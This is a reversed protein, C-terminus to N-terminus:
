RFLSRASNHNGLAIAYNFADEIVRAKDEGAEPHRTRAKGDKAPYEELSSGAFVLWASAFITLPVHRAPACSCPQGRIPRSLACVAGRLATVPVRSGRAPRPTRIRGHNLLSGLDGILIRRSAARISRLGSSPVRCETSHRLSDGRLIQLAVSRPIDREVGTCIELRLKAM